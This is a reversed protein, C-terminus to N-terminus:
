PSAWAGLRSGLVAPVLLLPVALLTSAPTGKALLMAMLTISGFQFTALLHARAFQDAFHQRVWLVLPPGGAGVLGALVGGVTAAGTAQLIMPLAPEPLHDLEGRGAVVPRWVFRAGMAAVVVGLLAKLTAPELHVVLETGVWQGATIGGVLGALLPMRLTPWVEKVLWAGTILDTAVLLLIAERPPLFSLLVPMSVLASGFGTIGKVLHALALALGCAALAELSLEM